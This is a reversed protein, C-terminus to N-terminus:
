TFDAQPRRGADGAALDSGIELVAWGAYFDFEEAWCAILSMHLPYMTLTYQKSEDFM